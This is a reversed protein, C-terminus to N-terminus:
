KKRNSTHAHRHGAYLEQVDFCNFANDPTDHCLLKNQVCVVSDAFESVFDLEHSVILFTTSKKKNIDRILDYLAQEGSADIGTSPEDLILIDREHLLARAILIRQLQGGSLVGLQKQWVDSMGVLALVDHIADRQAHRAKHCLSLQLFEFVTLPLTKDFFFRQPVYGMRRLSQRVSKGEILIRGHTPMELGLIQKVLTTKGSGNPGIIAVIDGKPISFSVDDLALFDGYRVTLHEVTLVNNKTAKM